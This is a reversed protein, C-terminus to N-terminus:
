AKKYKKLTKKKTVRTAAAKKSGSTSKSAAPKPAIKKEAVENVERRSDTGERAPNV